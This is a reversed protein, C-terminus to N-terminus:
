LGEARDIRDIEAIILAAAKVLNRRTDTPNWWSEDWPWMFASGLFTLPPTGDFGKASLTMALSAAAAYNLAARTIEGGGHQDDHEATFGEGSIQRAREQLVDREAATPTHMKETMATM